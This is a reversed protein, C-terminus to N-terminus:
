ANSTESQSADLLSCSLSFIGRKPDNKLVRQVGLFGFRFVIWSCGPFWGLFVGFDGPVGWDVSTKVWFEFFAAFCGLVCFFEGFVM